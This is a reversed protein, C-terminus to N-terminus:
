KAGKKTKKIVKTNSLFFCTYRNNAAVMSIIKMPSRIQNIFSLLEEPSNGTIQQMGNYINLNDLGEDVNM